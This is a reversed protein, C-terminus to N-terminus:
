NASLDTHGNTLAMTAIGVAFNRDEKLIRGHKFHSESLFITLRFQRRNLLYILYHRLFERQHSYETESSRAEGPSASTCGTNMTEM